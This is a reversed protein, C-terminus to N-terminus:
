LTALFSDIVYAVAHRIDPLRIALLGHKGFAIGVPVSFNMNKPYSPAEGIRIRMVPMRGVLTRGESLWEIEFEIDHAFAGTVEIGSERYDEVYPLVFGFGPHITAHKDANSFTNLTEMVEAAHFYARM